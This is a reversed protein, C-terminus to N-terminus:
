GEINYFFRENRNPTITCATDAGDNIHLTFYEFGLCCKWPKM